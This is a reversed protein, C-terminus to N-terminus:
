SITLAPLLWEQDYSGHTMWCYAQTWSFGWVVARRKWPSHLWKRFPHCSLHWTLGKSWLVEIKNPNDKLKNAEGFSGRPVLEPSRCTGHSRSSAPSLTLYWRCIPLLESWIKLHGWGAAEHWQQFAHLVGSVLLLPVSYWDGLAVKQFREELYSQIMALSYRGIGAQFPVEPLYWSWHDLFGSLHLNNCCFSCDQLPKFHVVRATSRGAM